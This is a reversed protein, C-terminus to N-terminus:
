WMTNSPSRMLCMVFIQFSEMLRCCNPHVYLWTRSFATRCNCPLRALAGQLQRPSSSRWLKGKKEVGTREFTAALRQTHLRKAPRCGGPRVTLEPLSM